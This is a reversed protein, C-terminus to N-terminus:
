LGSGKSCDYGSLFKLFEETTPRQFMVVNLLPRTATYHAVDGRLRGLPRACSHNVVISRSRMASGLTRADAVPTLTHHLDVAASGFNGCITRCAQNRVDPDFAASADSLYPCVGSHNGPAKVFSVATDYSELRSHTGRVLTMPSPESRDNRALRSALGLGRSIRVGPFRRHNDADCPRSHSQGPKRSGM